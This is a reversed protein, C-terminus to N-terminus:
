SNVQRPSKTISICLILMIFLPCAEYLSFSKSFTFIYYIAGGLVSLFIENKIADKSLHLFTFARNIVLFILGLLTMLGWLGFEGFMQIFINHPYYGISSNYKFANIGGGFIFWNNDLIENLSEIWIPIRNEEETEELMRMFRNTSYEGGYEMYYTFAMYGLFVLCLMALISRGINKRGNFFSLIIAVMAPFILVGRAAFRTLSAFFFASLGLWFVFEVYKKYNLSHILKILTITLSLGITLTMNLYNAGTSGMYYYAVGPRLLIVLCHAVNILIVVAIIKQIKEIPLAVCLAPITLAVVFKVFTQIVSTSPMWILSFFSYVLILAMFVYCSWIGRDRRLIRAISSSYKVFLVIICLVFIAYLSLTTENVGMFFRLDNICLVLAILISDINKKLFNM